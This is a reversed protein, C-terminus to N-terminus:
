KFFSFSSFGGLPLWFQKIYLPPYHDISIISLVKLDGRRHMSSSTLGEIDVVFLLNQILSAKWVNLPVFLFFVSLGINLKGCNLDYIKSGNKMQFQMMSNICIFSILVRKKKRANRNFVCVVREGTKISIWTQWSLNSIKIVLKRYSM